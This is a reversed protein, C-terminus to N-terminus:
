SMHLAQSLQSLRGGDHQQRGDGNLDHQHDNRDAVVCHDGPCATRPVDCGSLQGARQDDGGGNDHDATREPALRGPVGAGQGQEPGHAEADMGDQPEDERHDSQELRAADEVHDGHQEIQQDRRQGRDDQERQM